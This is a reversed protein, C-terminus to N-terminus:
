RAATLKEKWEAQKHVFRSDFYHRTPDIPVRPKWATQEVSTSRQVREELSRMLSLFDDLRIRDQTPRRGQRRAGPGAGM